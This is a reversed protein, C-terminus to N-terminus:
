GFNDIADLQEDTLVSPSGILGVQIQLDALNELVEMRDYANFLTDGVTLAGHNQMLIAKGDKLAAAVDSALAGSGMLQYDASVIEGLFYRAEGCLNNELPRKSCAWATAKPPHAHVIANVDPRAQYIAWHMGTEMSPRLDASLNEGAASIHAIKDAQINGKDSQSATILMSGDDLRMSVNGGSCTTLGRKYLRQMIEAVERKESLYNM